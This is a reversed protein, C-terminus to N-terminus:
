HYLLQAMKMRAQQRHNDIPDCRKSDNKEGEGFDKDKQNRYWM